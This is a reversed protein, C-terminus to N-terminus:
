HEPRRRTAKYTVYIARLQALVRLITTTRTALALLGTVLGVSGVGGSRRRRRLILLLGVAGAIWGLPSKGGRSGARQRWATLANRPTIQAVRYSLELRQEECKNLLAQRRAELADLRSSM